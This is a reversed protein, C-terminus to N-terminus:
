QNSRWMQKIWQFVRTLVNELLLMARDLWELLRELPHKVYGIKTAKTEIPKASDEIRKRILLEGSDGFLDGLTLWLDADSSVEPPQQRSKEALQSPRSLKHISRRAPLPKRKKSILPVSSPSHAGTNINRSRSGFFYAIAARILAQIRLTRAHNNNPAIAPSHSGGPQPLSSLFVTLQTRGLYIIKQSRKGLVLAVESVPALNSELEAITRDLFTIAWEPHLIFERNKQGALYALRQNRWYDAVEQIIQQQLKQQQQTTLIDLIENQATVLVLTRSSLQTAIGRISRSHHLTDTKTSSVVLLVRQIPTDANAPTQLQSHSNPQVFSFLQKRALKTSQFLRYAPYLLVQVSWNTNLQLQRFTRAYQEKWRSSQRHIFNFLRSQYRSSPASAM